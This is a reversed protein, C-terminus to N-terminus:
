TKLKIEVPDVAVNHHKAGCVECQQITLDGGSSGGDAFKGSIRRNEIVSLNSETNCCLNPKM